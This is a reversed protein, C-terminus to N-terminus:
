ALPQCRQISPCRVREEEIRSGTIRPIQSSRPSLSEVTNTVGGYDVTGPFM